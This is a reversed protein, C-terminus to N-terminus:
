TSLRTLRNWEDIFHQIKFVYRVYVAEPPFCLGGGASFADMMLLLFGAGSPSTVGLTRLQRTQPSFKLLAQAPSRMQLLHLDDEVQRLPEM